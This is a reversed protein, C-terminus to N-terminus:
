IKTKKEEEPLEWSFKNPPLVEMFDLYLPDYILKSFIVWLNWQIITLKM